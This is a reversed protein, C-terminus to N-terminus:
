KLGHQVRLIGIFGPTEGGFKLREGDGIATRRSKIALDKGKKYATVLFESPFDLCSAFIGAGQFPFVIFAIM